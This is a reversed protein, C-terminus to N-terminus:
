GWRSCEWGTMWEEMGEGIWGVNRVGSERMTVNLDAEGALVELPFTRFQTEITGVQPRTAIPNTLAAVCPYLTTQAMSHIHVYMCSCMSELVVLLSGVKNVVTRIRPTNKDLIM